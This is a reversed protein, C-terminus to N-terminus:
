QCTRNGIHIHDVGPPHQSALVAVLYLVPHSVRLSSQAIKNDFYFAMLM